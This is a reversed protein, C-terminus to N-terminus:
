GPPSSVVQAPVFYLIRQCSDCQIISENTRVENFIQPRLRVHCVGCHGNRAETVAVGQRKRAVHDFLALVSSPTEAAIAARAEAWRALDREFTEREQELRRQEERVGAQEARLEAEAAKVAAAREDGELMNELILDELRRVDAEATAIEHLIATYEKNTKVEMLQGKFKSLRTQSAAADKEVARRAAQNDALRAEADAQCARREALRAELAALRAPTEGIQRRADDSKTDLEQLRILRELDAHMIVHM